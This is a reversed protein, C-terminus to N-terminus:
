DVAKQVTDGFTGLSSWLDVLGTMPLGPESHTVCSMVYTFISFM